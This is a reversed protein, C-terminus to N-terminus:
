DRPHFTPVSATDPNDVAPEGTDEEGANEIQHESDGSSTENEADVENQRDDRENGELSESSEMNNTEETGDKENHKDPHDNQDQRAPFYVPADLLCNSCIVITSEVPDTIIPVGATELVGIEALAECVSPFNDLVSAPGAYLNGERAKLQGQQCQPCVDPLDSESGVGPFYYMPQEASGTATEGIASEKSSVGAQESNEASEDSSEDSSPADTDPSTEATEEEQNTEDSLEAPQETKETIYAHDPLDIGLYDYLPTVEGQDVLLPQDHIPNEANPLVIVIFDDETPQREFEVDPLFPPNFTEWDKELEERSNYTVESSGRIVVYNKESQDYYYYAPVTSPDGEAVHDQDEFVAFVGDKGPLNEYKNPGEAIITGDETEKWTTSRGSSTPRLAKLETGEVTIEFEGDKNYFVTTEEDREKATIINEDGYVSVIRQKDDDWRQDYIIREIYPGWWATTDELDDPAEDDFYAGKTVFATKEGRNISKRLNQLTHSPRLHTSTEAEIRILEGESLEAIHPYEKELTEVRENLSQQVQKATKNKMDIDAPDFPSEAVGDPMEEGDQTPLTTHYGLRTFLKFSERLVRRHAILGGTVSEGTSTFVQAEGKQTLRLAEKGDVTTLDVFQVLAEIANAIDSGYGMDGIREEIEAEVKEVSVEEGPRCGAKIRAAFISELIKRDELDLDSSEKEDVSESQGSDKEKTKGHLEQHREYIADDKMSQVVDPSIDGEQEALLLDQGIGTELQGNGKHFQLRQKREEPTIKERGWRDLSTQIVEQAEEATRYPPFPPHVYVKFPESVEGGDPDAMRMWIHYRSENLLAQPDLDLQPAIQKAEEHSGANFSMLTDCNTRVAKVVNDPLQSLYQTALNISLRYSRAEALMTPFTDDALAINHAEDIFLYFPKRDYISMEARSRITAWIRRVVAMGLMRKLDKPQSGMRVIIIKGNQVAQPINLENDRFCIMRRAIPSEIWPQMRGLIPELKEGEMEAIKDTYDEVFDIGDAQVLINFERRSRPDQLIYYFDALNLDPKHSHNRNYVNMARIINGAIRDMRPGWYDGAGLMKKLDSVLNSVATEIQPHDDALGVNIFNFGSIKGSTSGPEIWIVDDKRDDPLMEVLRESDDGKPDIACLGQGSEIIQKQINTQLTSKGYGTVGLVASHRYLTPKPITADKGKRVGTGLFLPVDYNDLDRAARPEQELEVRARPGAFIERGDDGDIESPDIDDRVGVSQVWRGHKKQIEEETFAYNLTCAQELKDLYDVIAERIAKVDATGARKFLSRDLTAQLNSVSEAMEDATPEQQPPVWRIEKGTLEYGAKMLTLYPDYLARRTEVPHNSGDLEDIVNQLDSQLAEVLQEQEQDGISAESIQRRSM